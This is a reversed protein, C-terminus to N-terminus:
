KKKEVQCKQTNKLENVIYDLQEDSMQDFDTKLEIEKLRPAVYQLFRSLLEARKEPNMKKLLRPLVKIEDEIITKLAQRLDFTLKNPVGAPRGAPNNTKGKGPGKM